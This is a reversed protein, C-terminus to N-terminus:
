HKKRKNPNPQPTAWKTESPARKHTALCAFKKGRVEPPHLCKIATPVQGASCEICYFGAKGRCVGWLQQNDGKFGVITSIPALTHGACPNAGGSPGAQPSRSGPKTSKAKSRRSSGGAEDDSSEMEEDSDVTLDCNVGENAAKTCFEIFTDEGNLNPHFYQFARAASVLVVGWMSTFLRFPFSGTVFRKEMALDHQRYRNGVDSHPQGLTFDNLVKPCPRRHMLVNDDDCDDLDHSMNKGAVTVGANFIYTHVAGGRRHAVAHLEM